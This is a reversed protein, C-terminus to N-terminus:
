LTRIPIALRPNSTVHANLSFCSRPMGHSVYYDGNSFLYSAIVRSLCVHGHEAFFFDHRDRFMGSCCFHSRQVLGSENEPTCTTTVIATQQPLQQKCHHSPPSTVPWKRRLQSTCSSSVKACTAKFGGMRWSSDWIFMVYSQACSSGIQRAVSRATEMNLWKKTSMWVVPVCICVLAHVTNM